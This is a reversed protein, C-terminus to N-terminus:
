VMAAGEPGGPIPAAGAAKAEINFPASDLWVPGGSIQHNRVDYAFGILKQLSANNATFNGGPRFGVGGPRGSDGSKVSAVDFEPGPAPTGASRAWGGAAGALGTLVLMAAINM